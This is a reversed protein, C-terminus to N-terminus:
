KKNLSKQMQMSAELFDNFNAKLFDTFFLGRKLLTLFFLRKCFHFFVLLNGYKWVQWFVQMRISWDISISTANDEMQANMEDAQDKYRQREDATLERFAQMAKKLVTNTDIPEGDDELVLKFEADKEELYLDFGTKKKPKPRFLM